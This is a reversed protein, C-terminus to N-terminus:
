VLNNSRDKDAVLKSIENENVLDDVVGIDNAFNSVGDENFVYDCIGSASEISESIIGIDGM